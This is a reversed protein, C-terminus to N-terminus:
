TDQPLKGGLGKGWTGWAFSLNPNFYFIFIRFIETMAFIRWIETFFAPSGVGHLITFTLFLSEIKHYNLLNFISSIALDM